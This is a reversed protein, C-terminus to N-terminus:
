SGSRRPLGSKTRAGLVFVDIAAEVVLALLLSENVQERVDEIRVAVALDAQCLHLLSGLGRVRVPRQRDLVRQTIFLVGSSLFLLIRLHRKSHCSPVTNSCANAEM